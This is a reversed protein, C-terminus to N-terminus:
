GAVAKILEDAQMDELQDAKTLIGESVTENKIEAMKVIKDRLRDAKLVAEARVTERPVRIIRIDVDLAGASKYFSTITEKSIKGAEDQYVTFDCRVFSGEIESREFQYLVIDLEDIPPDKVFDHHLRLLKKAPTETFRHSFVGMPTKPFEHIWFGKRGDEDIKTAYIPGSFFYKEGLCQEIHIHGLCGLDFNGLNMQDVSVEIDMGTRIQGNALRCGNVNLHTVLIHPAKHQAAQAGFGAFVASMAQSIDQDTGQLFQKTPTPILTLVANPKINGIGPRMYVDGATLFVQEPVSAVHVFHKGRAYRLIEAATGDHSATGIVIAVPAIDALESIVRVILKASLSDLKVDQSDFLDGAIVILDVAEERATDVVKRLCKEIEEIDKDRTHWDGSHLVRM